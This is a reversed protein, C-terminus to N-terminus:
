LNDKKIGLLSLDLENRKIVYEEEFKKLKGDELSRNLVYHYAGCCDHNLFDAYPIMMTEPLGWGFSRTLV